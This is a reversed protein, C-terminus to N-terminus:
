SAFPSSRLVFRLSSAFQLAAFLVPEDSSHSAQLSYRSLNALTLKSLRVMVKLNLNKSLIDMDAESVKNLDFYTCHM